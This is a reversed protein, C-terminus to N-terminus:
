KYGSNKWFTFSTIIKFIYILINIFYIFLNKLLKFFYKASLISSKKKLFIKDKIYLAQKPNKFNTNKRGIKNKFSNALNFAIIGAGGTHDPPFGDSLVVIKM